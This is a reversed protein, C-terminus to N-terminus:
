ARNQKLYVDVFPRCGIEVTANRVPFGFIDGSKTISACRQTAGAGYVAISQLRDQVVTSQYLVYMATFQAQFPKPLESKDRGLKLQAHYEILEKQQRELDAVKYVKIIAKGVNRRDDDFIIRDEGDSLTSALAKIFAKVQVMFYSKHSKHSQKKNIKSQEPLQQLTKKVQAEKAAIRAMNEIARIYFNSKKM